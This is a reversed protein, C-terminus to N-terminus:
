AMSSSFSCLNNLPCSNCDSKKKICYERGIIWAAADLDAPSSLKLKEISQISVNIDQSKSIGSRYLVRRVLADPKVSMNLRNKYGGAVGYNRVLIFQAMKALADGIGDFEIFRDYIENVCNTTVDNWINRVDGDYDNIIKIAASRIWNPFKNFTYASAYSTGNYGKQCIKELTSHHTDIIQQWFNQNSQFHTDVFHEGGDWAREAKQGQDLMVGVFFSNANFVTFRKRKASWRVWDYDDDKEIKRYFKLIQNVIAKKTSNNM